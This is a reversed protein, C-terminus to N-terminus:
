WWYRKHTQRYGSIRSVGDGLLFTLSGETTTSWIQAGSLSVRKVTEEAPHHFRNAYGASFIVAAPKVSNLFQSSSSYKSGHHAALLITSSLDQGSAVLQREVKRSIDGPLLFQDSETIVKLVCSSENSLKQSGGALMKFRVGEWQWSQGKHCYEDINDYDAIPSGAWVEADPYAKKIRSLGGSHDRDGHSIVIRDIKEIGRSRLAPLIVRDAATFTDSFADGTDYLLVHSSTQILVSLGQGVDLVTVEALGPEIQHKFPYLWPLFFVPALIRVRLAVPSIFLLSGGITLVIVLWHYSGSAPILNTLEACKILAIQFLQLCEDLFGLLAGAIDEHAYRIVASFLLLPVVLLGIFPIALFNILPSLPSVPQGNFLLIPTLVCFVVWQPRCVREWWQRSNQRGGLGFILTAVAIFSYWFGPSTVALPDFLLVVSLASLLLTISGARIGFLPGSLAILTMVLARQVPISFGALVAYGSAFVLSLVGALVPLPVRRLPLLGLFGLVRGLWFGLLAMLGIHLGSIVMLHTTGTANFLQWQAQSISSKDGTLLAILPGVSDSEISAILWRRLELRLRDTYFLWSSSEALKDGAKVYGTASIGQRATWAEYDFAGPSAFGHPRKLRVLLQWHDGPVLNFGSPVNDSPIDKSRDYWSLRVPHRVPNVEATDPTFFFRVVNGDIVPLSSVIGTIALDKGQMHEPLLRDNIRYGHLVALTFGLLIIGTNLCVRSCFLGTCTLLISAIGVGILIMEQPLYPLVSVSALSLSFLFLIQTPNWITKPHLEPCLAM